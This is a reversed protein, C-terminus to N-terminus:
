EDRDGPECPGANIDSKVKWESWTKEGGHECGEIEEKLWHACDDGNLRVIDNDPRKEIRFKLRRGDPLDYCMKHDTSDNNLFGKGGAWAFVTFYTVCADEALFLAKEKQDGWKEGGTYCGAYVWPVLTSLVAFSKFFHM